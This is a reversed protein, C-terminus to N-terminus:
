ARTEPLSDVLAELQGRPPKQWLRAPDYENGGSEEDDLAGRMVEWAPMEPCALDNRYGHWVGSAVGASWSHLAKLMRKSALAEADPNMGVLSCLFPPEQEQPLWVERSEVELARKVGYRYFASSLPYGMGIATRRFWAEPEASALTTKLNIMVRFDRSIRDPRIKCWTGDREQWLIVAESLGGSPQFARWIAPQSHELTAIFARAAQAMREVRRMSEPLLPVKGAALAAARAAKIAKNTWGTPIGGGKENPHDKPDIVVACDAHGELVLSHLVTGVGQEDTSDEADPQPNLWSGHWAALQCRQDIANLLSASVAPLKLYEAMPVGLHIGARLEM